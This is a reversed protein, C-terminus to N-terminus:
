PAPYAPLTSLRRDEVAGGVTFHYLDQYARDKLGLLEHVPDDFFCGIGTARVGSAEAELYLVQGLLGCEWFLRPYFWAGYRRLPAEFEALMALSFCGDGAIDQGCSVQAAVRRADGTVLRFLELGDPCAEPRQWDFSRDLAERLASLQAPDRVLFYLGPDLGQVRHVFLLLHVHPRWPLTTFPIQDPGPLCKRLIQYFADRTIGTHADMAVASRRQRIIRRLHVSSSEWELPPFPSVFPQDPAETPPKETATTVPSLNWDVHEASLRNPHGKWRLEGLRLMAGPPLGTVPESSVAPSIALLCDPREPEANGPNGTGLLQALEGTGLEDLLRAEWGLGAAAVALAGLAHGVDHQCYRFAREGYKWAERWHISTLGVFFTGPPFSVTLISWLESSLSARLELAHERPAYHYIGATDSLGPVPGCVLYGETPHLNGSSPNVRLAWRTGGAEKWASLSLSDFFLQSLSTRDLPAPPVAGRLFAPEFLPMDTPPVQDLPLLPAGAYRRFPDPQNAWDLYGPGRAYAHFAHKTAEHYTLVVSLPDGVSASARQRIGGTGAM